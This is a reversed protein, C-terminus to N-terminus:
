LALAQEPSISADTQDNSPLEAETDSAAPEASLLVLIDRARAAAARSAAQNDSALKRLRGHEIRLMLPHKLIAAYLAANEDFAQAIYTLLIAQDSSRDSTTELFSAPEPVRSNYAPFLAKVAAEHRQELAIQEYVSFSDPLLPAFFQLINILREEDHYAHRLMTPFPIKMIGGSDLAKKFDPYGPGQGSLSSQAGISLVGAFVIIFIFTTAKAIIRHM